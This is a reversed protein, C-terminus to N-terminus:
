LAKNIASQYHKNYRKFWEVVDVDLRITLKKKIPRDFKGIEASGWDTTEPIDSTDIDKNDNVALFEIEKFTAKEYYKRKRKTAKRASILIIIGGNLEIRLKKTNSGFCM